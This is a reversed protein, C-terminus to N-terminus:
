LFITVVFSTVGMVALTLLFFTLYDIVKLNVKLRSECMILTPMIMVCPFILGLNFVIDLNLYKGILVLIIGGLVFSSFVVSILNNKSLEPTM